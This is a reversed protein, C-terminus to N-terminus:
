LSIKKRLTKKESQKKKNELRKTKNAKRAKFKRVKPPFLLAQTIIEEFKDLAIQKNRLQSRSEQCVLIFLGEKNIRNKLRKFLLAKQEENLNVSAAIDFLLEVRTSVKNVHQGGSGSSRSARFSVEKIIASIEM